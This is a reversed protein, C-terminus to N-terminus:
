AENAVAPASERFDIAYTKGTKAEYYLAFGGGGINGAKPLTVALTYALAVAADAANGGSKLIWNASDTALSEQSAVMGNKATTPHFRAKPNILPQEAFSSISFSTFLLTIVSYTFTLRM